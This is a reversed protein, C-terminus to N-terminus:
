QVRKASIKLTNIKNELDAILRHGASYAKGNQDITITIMANFVEIGQYRQILYLHHANISATPYSSSIALDSIDVDSLQWEAKNQEIHRLAVDMPSQACLFTLQLLFLCTLLFQPIKNYYINM